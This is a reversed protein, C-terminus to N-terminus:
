VQRNRPLPLAWREPAAEPSGVGRLLSLPKPVKSGRPDRERERDREREIYIYTHMYAYNYM